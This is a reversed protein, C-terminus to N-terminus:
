KNWSILCMPVSGTRHSRTYSYGPVSMVIILIAHQQHPTTQSNNSPLPSWKSLQDSSVRNFNGDSSYRKEERRKQYAKIKEKKQAYEKEFAEIETHMGRYNPPQRAMLAEGLPINLMEPVMYGKLWSVLPTHGPMYNGM